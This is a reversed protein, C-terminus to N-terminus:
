LYSTDIYLSFSAAGDAVSADIQAASPPQWAHHVGGGYALAQAAGVVATADPNAQVMEKAMEVLRRRADAESRTVFVFRKAEFYPCAASGCDATVVYVRTTGTFSSIEVHDANPQTCGAAMLLGFGLLLKKM